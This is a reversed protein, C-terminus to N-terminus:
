NIIEIDKDHILTMAKNYIMISSKKAINEDIYKNNLDLYIQKYFKIICQLETSNQNKYTPAFTEVSKHLLNKYFIDISFKYSNGYLEGLECILQRILWAPNSWNKYPNKLNVLAFTKKHLSIMEFYTQSM